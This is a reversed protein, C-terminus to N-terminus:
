SFLPPMEGKEFDPGTKTKLDLILCEEPPPELEASVDQYSYNLVAEDPLVLVSPEIALLGCEGTELDQLFIRLQGDDCAMFEARWTTSQLLHELEETTM